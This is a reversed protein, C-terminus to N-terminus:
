DGQGTTLGIRAPQRRTCRLIDDSLSRISAESLRGNPLRHVWSTWATLYVSDSQPRSSRVIFGDLAAYEQPQCAIDALAESAALEHDMNFPVDVFAIGPLERRGKKAAQRLPNLLRRAHFVRSQRNLLFMSVPSDDGQIRARILVTGAGAVQHEGKPWGRQELERTKDLLRALADDYIQSLRERGPKSCNLDALEADLHYEAHCELPLGATRDLFMLVAQVREDRLVVEDDPQRLDKIEILIKGFAGEAVLDQRRGTRENPAFRAVRHGARLLAGWVELELTAGPYEGPERLRKLLDPDSEAPRVLAADIGVTVFDVPPMLALPQYLQLVIEVRRWIKGIRDVDGADIMERLDELLGKCYDAPYLMQFGCVATQLDPSRIGWPSFAEVHSPELFWPSIGWDARPLLREAVALM